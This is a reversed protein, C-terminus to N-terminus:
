LPSTRPTTLAAELDWGSRIRQSIAGRSLGLKKDFQSLSIISGNFTFRKNAKSVPETLARRKGWVRIRWRLTNSACGAHEAWDTITKTTGRFSIINNRRSNSNQEKATAWRCNSPTYNGNNNRRDLTKDKPRYGMDLFFNDFSKRWRACVTIGRGGYLPYTEHKPNYCRRLMASWSAYERSDGGPNTRASKMTATLFDWAQGAVTGSQFRFPRIALLRSFIPNHSDCTFIM